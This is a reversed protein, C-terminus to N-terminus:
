IRNIRDILKDCAKNFKFRIKNVLVEVNDQYREYAKDIEAHVEAKFEVIKSIAVVKLGQGLFNFIGRM